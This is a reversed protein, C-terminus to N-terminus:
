ILDLTEENLVQESPLNLQVLASHLLYVEYQTRKENGIRDRSECNVPM